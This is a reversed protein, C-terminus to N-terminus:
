CSAIAFVAATIAAGGIAFVWRPLAGLRAGLGPSTPLAVPASSDRLLQACDDGIEIQELVPAALAAIQALLAVDVDAFGPRKSRRAAVLVGLVRRDVAVIPQVILQSNPDGDPDDLPGRGRPDARARAAAAARGTRAVWGTIGAIAHRDDGGDRERTESWLSGDESDFYLCYAREADVLQKIAAVLTIEAAALDAAAAIARLREFLPQLRRAEALTNPRVPVLPEPAAERQIGALLEVLQDDTITSRAAYAVRADADPTWAEGLTVIRYYAPAEDATALVSVELRAKKALKGVRAVDAADTAVVAIDRVESGDKSPRKARLADNATSARRPPDITARRAGSAPQPMPPLSRMTPSTQAAARQSARESATSPASSGAASPSSTSSASRPSTVGRSSAATAGSQSGFARSNGASAPSTGAVPPLSRMTTSSQTPAAGASALAGSPSAHGRASELAGASAHAGSTSLPEGASAHAGTSAHAGISAHDGASTHASSSSAHGSTSAHAGSTAARAGSTSPPEGASAHGSTSAHAGSTAAHAGSTAARTGSASSMAPPRTQQPLALTSAPSPEDTRAAASAISVAIGDPANGGQQPLRLTSAPSPAGGTAAAAALKAAVGPLTSRSSRRPASGAAIDVATAILAALDHLATRDADTFDTRRWRRAAVLLAHVRLDAGIVPQVLVRAQPKGDPDDLELVYRPDDGAPSALAAHGTHACWGVLGFAARRDDGAARLNAESWAHTSAPDVFLLQARDASTLDTIATCALQEITARDTEAAIREAHERVRPTIAAGIAPPEAVVRGAVLARLLSGLMDDTLTPRAIYAVREPAPPSPEGIVVVTAADHVVTPSAVIPVHLSTAQCLRRIREADAGTAVVVLGGSATADRVVAPSAPAPRSVLDLLVVDEIAPRREITAPPLTSGPDLETSPEWGDKPESM